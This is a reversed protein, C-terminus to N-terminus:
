HYCCYANVPSTSDGINGFSALDWADTIEDGSLNYRRVSGFSYLYTSKSSDSLVIEDNEFHNNLGAIDIEVNSCTRASNKLCVRVDPFYLNSHLYGEWMLGLSELSEQNNNNNDSYFNYYTQFDPFNQNFKPYYEDGNITYGNQYEEKKINYSNLLTTTAMPNISMCFYYDGKDGDVMVYKKFGAACDRSFTMSEAKAHDVLVNALYDGLESGGSNNGGSNNNGGGTDKNNSTGVKGEDNVGTLDGLGDALKSCSTFILILCLLSVVKKM